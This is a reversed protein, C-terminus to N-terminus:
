AHLADDEVDLAVERFLPRTVLFAVGTDGNTFINAYNSDIERIIDCLLLKTHEKVARDGFIGEVDCHYYASTQQANSRWTISVPVGNVEKM